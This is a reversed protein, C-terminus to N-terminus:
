VFTCLKSETLSTLNTPFINNSNPSIFINNQITHALSAGIPNLITTATIPLTYIQTCHRINGPQESFGASATIRMNVLTCNTVTGYNSQMLAVATSTSSNRIYCQSFNSVLTRGGYRVFTNSINFYCRLYSINVGAAPAYVGVTNDFICNDVTHTGTGYNFVRNASHNNVVNRFVCNTTTSTVNNAFYGVSANMVLNEFRCNTYDIM